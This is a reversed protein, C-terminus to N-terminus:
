GKKKKLAGKVSITPPPEIGLSKAVQRHSWKEVEDEGYIIMRVPIDKVDMDGLVFRRNHEPVAEYAQRLFDRAEESEEALFKKYAASCKEITTPRGNLREIEDAVEKVFEGERVWSGVGVARFEALLSVSVKAGEPLTTVVWGSAVKQKFTEFDVLGWCDVVADKYIKIDALYYTGGNHIFAKLFTGPILEGNQERSTTNWLSM